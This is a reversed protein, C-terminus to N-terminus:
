QNYLPNKRWVSSDKVIFQLDIYDRRTELQSINHEKGDIILSYDHGESLLAWDGSNPPYLDPRFFHWDIMLHLSIRNIDDKNPVQFKFNKKGESLVISSDFHITGKQFESKRARIHVQMKTQLEGDVSEVTGSYIYYEPEDLGLLNCSSLAALYVLILFRSM